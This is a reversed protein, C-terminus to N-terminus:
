LSILRSNTNKSRYIRIPPTYSERCKSYEGQFNDCCLSTATDNLGGNTYVQCACNGHKEATAARHIM